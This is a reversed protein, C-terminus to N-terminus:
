AATHLPISNAENPTVLYRLANELSGFKEVWAQLDVQAPEISDPVGPILRTRAADLLAGNIAPHLRRLPLKMWLMYLTYGIAPLVMLKRAAGQEMFYQDLRRSPFKSNKVLHWQGGSQRSLDLWGNRLWNLVNTLAQVGAWQSTPTVLSIEGLDFKVWPIQEFAASKLAMLFREGVQNLVSAGEDVIEIGFLSRVLDRYTPRPLDARLMGDFTSAMGGPVLANVTAFREQTSVAPVKSRYPALLAEIDKEARVLLPEDIPQSQKWPTGELMKLVKRVDVQGYPAAFGKLAVDLVIPSGNGNAMTAMMLTLVRNGNTDHTHLQLPVTIGSRRLEGVLQQAEKPELIGGADKLTLTDLSAGAEQIYKKALRVYEGYGLPFNTTYHICPQVKAAKSFRLVSRIVQVIAQEDQFASFVRVTDNGWKTLTEVFADVVNDPQANLGVINAERFLMQQRILYIRMAEIKVTEPITNYEERGFFKKLEAESLFNRHMNSDFRNQLQRWDQESIIAQYPTLTKNFEERLIETMLHLVVWSDKVNEGLKSKMQFGQFTAGGNTEIRSVGEKGPRVMHVLRRFVPLLVGIPDLLLNWNSQNGDRVPTFMFEVQRASTEPRKLLEHFVQCRLEQFMQEREQVQFVRQRLAADPIVQGVLRGIAQDIPDFVEGYTTRFGLPPIDRILSDLFVRYREPHFVQIYAVGALESSPYSTFWPDDSEYRYLFDEFHRRVEANMQLDELWKKDRGLIRRQNDPSLQLLSEIHARLHEVDQFAYYPTLQESFEQPRIKTPERQMAFSHVRNFFSPRNPEEFPNNPETPVYFSKHTDGSLGAAVVVMMGIPIVTALWVFATGGIPIGYSELSPMGFAIWAKAYMKLPLLLALLGVGWHAGFTMNQARHKFLHDLIPLFAKGSALDEAPATWDRIRAVGVGGSGEEIRLVTVTTRGDPSSRVGPEGFVKNDTVFALAGDVHGEIDNETFLKQGSLIDVWHTPHLLQYIKLELSTWIGVRKAFKDYVVAEVKQVVIAVFEELDAASLWSRRMWGWVNLTRPYLRVSGVAGHAGLAKQTALAMMSEPAGATTWVVVLKGNQFHGAMAGFVSPMLTGDPILTVHFGRRSLELIKPIERKRNLVVVEIENPSLEQGNQDAWAMQIRPFAEWPNDPDLPNRRFTERWQKPVFTFLTHGYGDDANPEKSLMEGPKPRIDFSVSSGGSFDALRVNPPLRDDPRYAVGEEVLGATPNTGEIVDMLTYYDAYLGMSQLIKQVREDLDTPVVNIVDGAPIAEDDALADRGLGEFAGVKRRMGRPTRAMILENVSMLTNKARADIVDKVASVVIKKPKKPDRNGGKIKSLIAQVSESPVGWEVSKENLLRQVTQAIEDPSMESTLVTSQLIKKALGILGWSYVAAAVAVTEAEMLSFSQVEEDSFMERLAGRAPRYASVAVKSALLGREFPSKPKLGFVRRVRSTLRARIDFKSLFSKQFLLLSPNIAQLNIESAFGEKITLRPSIASGLMFQNIVLISSFAVRLNM